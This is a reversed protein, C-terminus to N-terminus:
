RCQGPVTTMASHLCKVENVSSPGELALCEITKMAGPAYHHSSLTSPLIIGPFNSTPKTLVAKEGGAKSKRKAIGLCLDKKHNSSVM